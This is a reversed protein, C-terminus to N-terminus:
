FSHSNVAIISGGGQFAPGDGYITIASHANDAVIVSISNHAVM